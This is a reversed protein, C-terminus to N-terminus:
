APRRHVEAALRDARRRLLQLVDAALERRVVQVVAPHVVEVPVGLQLGSWRDSAGGRGCKAERAGDALVRRPAGKRTARARLAAHRDGDQDQRQDGVAVRQQAERFETAPADDAPDEGRQREAVIKRDLGRLRGPGPLPDRRRLEHEVLEIQGPGGAAGRQGAANPIVRGVRAQALERQRQAQAVARRLVRERRVARHDALRARDGAGVHGRPLDACERGM